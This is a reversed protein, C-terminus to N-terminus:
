LQLSGTVVASPAISPCNWSPKAVLQAPSCAGASSVPASSDAMAIHRLSAVPLQSPPFPTTPDCISARRAICPILSVSSNLNYSILNIISQISCSSPQTPTTLLATRRNPPLPQSLALNFAQPRSSSAHEGLRRPGPTQTQTQTQDPRSSHSPSQTVTHTHTHSHSLPCPIPMAHCVALMM